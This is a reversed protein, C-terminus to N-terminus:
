LSTTALSSSSLLTRTPSPTMHSLTADTIVSATTSDTPAVDSPSVGMTVSTSLDTVTIVRPTPQPRPQAMSTTTTTAPVLGGTLPLVTYLPDFLGFGGCVNCPLAWSKVPGPAVLVPDCRGDRAAMVVM